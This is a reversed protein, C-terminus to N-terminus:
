RLVDSPYRQGAQHAPRDAPDMLWIRGFSAFTARPAWDLKNFRSTPFIRAVHPSEIVEDILFYPRFGQSQLRTVVADLDPQVLDLRVIPRHSYYAASGSHMFSMVVANPPLARALYPAMVLVSHTSRYERLASQVEPVGTWIVLAAPAFAV